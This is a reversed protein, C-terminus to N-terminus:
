RPSAHVDGAPALDRGDRRQPLNHTSGPSRPAWTRRMSCWGAARRPGAAPDIATLLDAARRDMWIIAPGLARGRRGDAVCGDLQGCVALARLTRPRWGRRTLAEAIAPECRPSGCGPIRSPGAPDRFARSTPSAAAASCTATEDGIVVAKLSQTGIDIGLIRM